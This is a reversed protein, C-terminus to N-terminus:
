EVRIAKRAAAEAQKGVVVKLVGQDYRATINSPDAQKPLRM